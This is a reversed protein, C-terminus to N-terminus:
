KIRSIIIRIYYLIKKACIQASIKFQTFACNKAEAQKVIHISLLYLVFMSSYSFFNSPTYKLFIFLIIHILIYVKKGKITHKQAKNDNREKSLDTKSTCGLTVFFLTLLGIMSFAFGKGFDNIFDEYNDKLLFLLGMSILLPEFLNLFFEFRVPKFDNLDKLILICLTLIVFTVAVKGEPNITELLYRGYLVGLLIKLVSEILIRMYKQNKWFGDWNEDFGVIFSNIKEAM